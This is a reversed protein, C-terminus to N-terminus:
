LGVKQDIETSFNSNEFSQQRQYECDFPCEDIESSAASAEIVYRSDDSVRQFGGDQDRGILSYTKGV